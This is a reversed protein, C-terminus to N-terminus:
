RGRGNIWHANDPLLDVFPEDIEGRCWLNTSFAQEGKRPGATFEFEFRHGGFGRWKDPAPDDERGITYFVGNVIVCRDAIEDLDRIRRLWFDCTFCSKQERLREKVEDTFHFEIENNCYQCIMTM